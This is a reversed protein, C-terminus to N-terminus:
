QRACRQPPTNAGQILFGDMYKECGCKRDAPAKPVPSAETSKNASQNAAGACAWGLAGASV